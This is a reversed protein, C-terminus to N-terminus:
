KQKKPVLMKRQDMWNMLQMLQNGTFPQGDDGIVKSNMIVSKLAQVDKVAFVYVTDYSVSDKKQASLSLTSVLAILTLLKM